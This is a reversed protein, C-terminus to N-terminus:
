TLEPLYRRVYEGSPDFRKAQRVPNFTRNPRTDNGTGAIWQWNAYNNAIDGDVLHDMFHRGGCRWDVGLHRCLFSATIMRARNHMWGTALLQRMGADVIPLGTRGAKWAELAEPDDRWRRRGRPRYDQTTISPFARVTQHHFDRWCLQRVFAEGGPRDIFREEVERASLCGFHLAAGLKSTDDAALDDHIEDYRGLMGRGWSNFRRRAETEGGPIVEPAPRGDVLVAADPIEGPDVGTAHRVTAPAREVPRRPAERWANWYPTFVKYTKLADPAVITTGDCVVLSRRGLTAALREERDRATRTVGGSVFVAEAGVGQVLKGVERATDGRRVVLDAGRSRLNDRLDRLAEVLFGVRNPTAFWSRLIAQDLVFLPVLDRARRLAERLAPHDHVRLDSTFLVIATDMRKM